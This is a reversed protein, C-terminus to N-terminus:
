DELLYSGQRHPLPQKGVVKALVMGPRVYRQSRRSLVLGDTATAVATRAKEPVETPDVVWAITDGKNV